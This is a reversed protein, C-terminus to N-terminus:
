LGVGGGMCIGDILAVYPKPYHKILTNLVYEERYFRLMETQRGAVGLDYLQRIDGGASFARDGAATMVVRTISADWAWDELQHALARVMDFTVANLARPRNLTVLGAVGRREFLIESATSWDM